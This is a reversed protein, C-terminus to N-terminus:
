TGVPVCSSGTGVAATKVPQVKRVHTAAPKNTKKKTTEMNSEQKLAQSNTKM